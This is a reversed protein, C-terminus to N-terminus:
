VSVHGTKKSGNGNDKPPVSAQSRLMATPAAHKAEVAPVLRTLFDRARITTHKVMVTQNALHEFGYDLLHTGYESQYTRYSCYIPQKRLNKIITIGASVLATTEDRVDPHIMMRIWHGMKGAHFNLVALIEGQHEWVYGFRYGQDGILYNNIQWQGQALGEATQIPLPTVAAYLRQLSWSDAAKQRRLKLTPEIQPQYENPTLRYICEEAYATFGVNKFIQLADGESDLHAYIRQHGAEGAKVCLHSILRQWMAHSGNGEELTPSIFVVDQEPRGPRTRAQALGTHTGNEDSSKLIFTTVGPMAPFLNALLASRLPSRPHLLREELNLATGQKQMNAVLIVDRISFPKIM